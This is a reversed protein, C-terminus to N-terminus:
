SFPGTKAPELGPAFQRNTSGPCPAFTALRDRGDQRDGRGCCGVGKVSLNARSGHRGSVQGGERGHREGEVLEPYNSAAAASLM